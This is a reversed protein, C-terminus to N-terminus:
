ATKRVIKSSSEQMFFNLLCHSIRTDEIPVKPFIVENEQQFQSLFVWFDM